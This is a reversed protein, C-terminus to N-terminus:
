GSSGSTSPPTGTWEELREFDAASLQVEVRGEVIAGVSAGPVYRAAELAGPSVAIGDFIDADGVVEAVTGLEEGGSGVVDWGREVMLWSTPRPQEGM